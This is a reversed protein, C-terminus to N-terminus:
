GVISSLPELAQAGRYGDLDLGDWGGAECAARAELKDIQINPFQKDDESV